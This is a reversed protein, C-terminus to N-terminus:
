LLDSTFDGDLWHQLLQDMWYYDHEKANRGLFGMHGGHTTTWINVSDPLALTELNALEVFPDDEAFLLHAPCRIEPLFQASSCQQYYDDADKFGWLPATMVQDLEYISHVREKTWDRIQLALNKLYYMEYFFHRKLGILQVTRQLDLPSCVAICSKIYEKGREGLEGALKLAINGGLSFGVITVDSDPAENKCSELVQLIDHSAGAYYPLKSLGKGSGCGRLNVRVIKFGKAYSKRAMRVMYSASHCAGLGHILILTPDNPKWESPISVQCSLHDGGELPILWRYSEPAGGSSRYSPIITQLHKSSLWPLPQFNLKIIRNM